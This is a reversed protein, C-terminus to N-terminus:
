SLAIIMKLTYTSHVITTSQVISMEEELNIVDGVLVNFIVEKFRIIDHIIPDENAVVNSCDKTYAM